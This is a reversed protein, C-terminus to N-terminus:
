VIQLRGYISRVELNRYGFPERLTSINTAEKSGLSDVSPLSIYAFLM